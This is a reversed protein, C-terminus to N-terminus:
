ILRGNGDAAHVPLGQGVPHHLHPSAALQGEGRLGGRADQAVQPCLCLLVQSNVTLRTRTSASAAATELLREVPRVSSSAQPTVILRAFTFVSTTARELLKKWVDWVPVQRTLTVVLVTTSTSTYASVLNTAATREVSIACTVRRLPWLSDLALPPQHPQQNRFDKWLGWVPVQRLPWPSDLALAPQPPQKTRFDKWLGWVPVQRALPLLDQAIQPCLCLLVQSNITLWTRTSASAAAPESLREVPRVSSSAQNFDRHACHYIHIHLSLCPKDSCDKGCLDCLSAQSTVTLRTRTFVSTAAQYSLREVPRVSSSAQPTVILRAFTFVSTTARELLKEVRRVCSSAQSNVTLGSGTKKSRNLANM